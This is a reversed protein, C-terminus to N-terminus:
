RPPLLMWKGAIKELRYETQRPQTILQIGSGKATTAVREEVPVSAHDGTVAPAGTPKVILRYESFQKFANQWNRAEAESYTRVRSVAKLDRRSLANAYEQISAEILPREVEAPSPAAPPPAPPPGAAPVPAADPRAIPVIAPPVAGAGDSGVAAPKDSSPVISPPQAGTLPPNGSAAPTAPAQAAYAAAAARQKETDAVIKIQDRLEKLNENTPDRRAIQAVLKSAEAHQGSALLRYAAMADRDSPNQPPQSTLSAPPTVVAPPPIVPAATTTSPPAPLPGRTVDADPKDRSMMYIGAALVIVAAAALGTYLPTRRPASVPTVGSAPRPLVASVHGGDAPAPEQLADAVEEGRLSALFGAVLDHPPTFAELRAIASAKDGKDFLARADTVAAQAAADREARHARSDIAEQARAQLDRAAANEPDIALLEGVARIAGEFSGESFRTRARRLMDQVQRAREIERRTTDIAERLQLVVPSQPALESAQAVIQEAAGLRGHQLEVRAAAVLEAIQQREEEAAIEDLLQLGSSLDPDFMLAQEVAERAKDYAGSDCLKRAEALHLDIQAARKKQVTLRHAGSSGRRSGGSAHASGPASGAPPSHRGGSVPRMQLTVDPPLSVTEGSDIQRELRQRVAAIENRMVTLDAYRRAPDKELAHNVIALIAPDVGHLIHNLPKPEEYLIKHM